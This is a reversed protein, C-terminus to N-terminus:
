RAQLAPRAAIRYHGHWCHSLFAVALDLSEKVQRRVAIAEEETDFIM